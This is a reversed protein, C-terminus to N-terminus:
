ATLALKLGDYGLRVHAPLKTKEVVAHKGLRHSIHTLYSMEPKLDDILDLVEDITFHSNHEQFQLGNVVLTKLGRLKMREEQSITKADTIYGFDGFRFGLVPLRHHLVTVPMIELGAIEFPGDICNLELVPVGPYPNESFAYAFEVKLRDLVRQQAYLPMPKQQKYNFGRVDDLGAIHDKHEHTFLIGDLTPIRNRLIQQRFDPGSDVLLSLTGLQLHMSSRLRQDRYDASTCVECHCGIMPVGQSTGTGLLTVVGKRGLNELAM